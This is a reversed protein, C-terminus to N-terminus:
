VFSIVSSVQVVAGDLIRVANDVDRKDLYHVKCEVFGARGQHSPQSFILDGCRAALEKVSSLVQAWDLHVDNVDKIIAIHIHGEFGSLETAQHAQSQWAYDKATLAVVRWDPYLLRVKDIARVADCTDDFSVYLKGSIGLESLIPGNV